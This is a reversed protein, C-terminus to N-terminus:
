RATRESSIPAGVYPALTPLNQPLRPLNQPIAMTPTAQSTAMQVLAEREADTLTAGRQIKQILRAVAGQITMPPAQVLAEDAIRGATGSGTNPNIFRANNVQDVMNGISEQYNGANDAGFTEALNRGQNTSSSLRNLLGTASETPKGIADTMSQRYAIGANANVEPSGGRLAALSAAFDDPAANLGTAGVDLADRRAHYDRYTQRAEALQPVNELASDVDNKREFSGGARANNGARSLKGGREGMAIKIRDLTAASVTPPPKGSLLADIEAVQSAERRELADARAARMASAGPADSLASMVEDPVPVQTQYPARYQETALNGQTAKLDDAVVNAPRTDPTLARTRAIANDQLDAAVRDGHTVALGRAPGAKMAAGRILGLTAQGGSPLKAVADLLTPEPGGVQQWRTVIARIQDGTAGDKHLSEALRGLAETQPNLLRGGSAANAARKVTQVIPAALKGTGRVAAGAAPIAGSVVAGLVADRNAAGLRQKIDGEGGLGTAYGVAGGTVAAKAMNGLLPLAGKAAIQPAVTAGGTLFAPLVQAAIGAGTTLNSAARHNARFRDASGKSVARAQEWAQPLNDAQGTALKGVANAADSFEDAFPLSHNLTSVAGTITDVLGPKPPAKDIAMFRSGSSTKEPAKSLPVFRSM